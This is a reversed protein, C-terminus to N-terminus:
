TSEGTQAWLVLRPSSGEDENKKEGEGEASHPVAIERSHSTDLSSEPHFSKCLTSDEQSICCYILKEAEACNELSLFVGM